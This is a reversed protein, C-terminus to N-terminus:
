ALPFLALLAWGKAWGISSKITQKLGLGWQLHGGWLAVLMVLMGAIWLWVIFPVPGAPRLSPRLAPGFYLAIVALAFLSWGLVPGVVYLAGFAYFLWTFVLTKYVITEPINQPRFSLTM